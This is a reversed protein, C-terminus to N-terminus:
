PSGGQCLECWVRKGGDAMRRWGWRDSVREVILLGRGSVATTSMDDALVPPGGGDDDVELVVCGDRRSLRLGVLSSHRIANTVLESTVLQLDEALHGDADDGLWTDVFRRALRVSAPESRLAIEGWPEADEGQHIEMEDGGFEVSPAATTPREDLDSGVGNADDM